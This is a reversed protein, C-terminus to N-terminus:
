RKARETIKAKAAGRIREAASKRSDDDGVHLGVGATPSCGAGAAAAIPKVGVGAEASCVLGADAVVAVKVDGVGAGLNLGTLKLGATPRVNINPVDNAARPQVKPKAKAQRDAIKATAAKRIGDGLSVHVDADDDDDDDDDLVNLNVGIGANVGVEAGIDIPDVGVGVGIEGGLSIGGGIGIGIDGIGIGINLGSISIGANVGANVNPRDDPRDDASALGACALMGLSVATFGAASRLALRSITM